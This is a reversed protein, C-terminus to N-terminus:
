HGPGLKCIAERTAPFAFQSAPFNAPGVIHCELNRACNGVPRTHEVNATAIAVDRMMQASQESGGNSPNVERPGSFGPDRVPLKIALRKRNRILREIHSQETVDQVM